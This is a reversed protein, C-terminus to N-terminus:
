KKCEELASKNNKKKLGNHQIIILFEYESFFVISSFIDSMATFWYILNQSWQLIALNLPSESCKWRAYADGNNNNETHM